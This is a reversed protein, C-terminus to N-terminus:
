LPIAKFYACSMAAGHRKQSTAIHSFPEEKLNKRM